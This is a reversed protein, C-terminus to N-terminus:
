VMGGKEVRELEAKCSGCYEKQWERLEEKRRERDGSGIVKQGDDKEVKTAGDGMMGGVVECRRVEGWLWNEWEARIMEGEVRNVVRMAVLLDHRYAGLSQRGRRLRRAAARTSKDGHGLGANTFPADLDTSNSLERFTEYCRSEGEDIMLPQLIAASELDSLSIARSMVTNPGVGIRSMFAAANRQRWWESADKGSLFVNFMVSIALLSLIIVNASAVEWLKRFLAFTWLMLSSVATELFSSIREFLITQPSRSKSQERTIGPGSYDEEAVVSDNNDADKPKLQDLIGNPNATPDEIPSQLPLQEALSAPTITFAQAVPSFPTDVEGAKVANQKAVEFVQLWEMLQAQTEAQLMLSSSKTKVEFCFRRDEAPAPKVNCLLVGIKESEEVTGTASDQILWGFVGAKVYFWRRIWHTRKTKESVVRMYLWSQKEGKLSAEGDAAPVKPGLFPVTSIQYDELERSPASANNANRSIEKKAALLEKKFVEGVFGMEKSWKKIREMEPEWKTTGAIIADKNRKMEKWQKMSIEVLLKDIAFKLQPALLCFDLSAKLYAKRVEHVQFADERLSSPEKTKSQSLYKALTSDYIKQTQELYRMADKFNRLQGGLFARLPEVISLEMSRTGKVFNGLWERGAESFHQMALMTYDPDLVAQSVNPPPLSRSLFGNITDEIRSADNILQSTSHSYSDLWQSVVEVQQSFHVATARFTPSDVSAEKLGIPSFTLPRSIQEVASNPPKDTAQAQAKATNIASPKPPQVVVDAM